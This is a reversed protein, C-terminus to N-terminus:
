VTHLTLLGALHDTHQPVIKSFSSSGSVQRIVTVTTFKHFFCTVILSKMSRKVWHMICFIWCAYDLQHASLCPWCTMTRTRLFRQAAVAKKKTTAPTCLRDNQSNKFHSIHIAKWWQVSHLCRWYNAVANLLQTWLRGCCMAVNEGKAWENKCRTLM